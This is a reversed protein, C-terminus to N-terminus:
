PSCAQLRILYSCIERTRAQSLLPQILSQDGGRTSVILSILDSTPFYVREILGGADFCVAGQRLTVNSLYRKLLALTTDPFLALLQNSPGQYQTSSTMDSSVGMQLTTGFAHKDNWSSGDFLNAACIACLIM